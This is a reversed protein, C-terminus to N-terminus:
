ILVFGCCFDVRQFFVIYLIFMGYGFFVFNLFVFFVCVMVYKRISSVKDNQCYDDLFDDDQEVFEFEMRRYKNKSGLDINFLGDGNGNVLGM